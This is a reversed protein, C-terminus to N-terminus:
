IEGPEAYTIKRGEILAKLTASPVGFMADTVYPSEPDEYYRLARKRNQLTSILDFLFKEANYQQMLLKLDPNIFFDNLRKLFENHGNPEALQGRLQHVYRWVNIIPDIKDLIKFLRVVKSRGDYLADNVARMSPRHTNGLYMWIFENVIRTREKPIVSRIRGEALIRASGRKNRSLETHAPIDGLIVEGLEHYAICRALDGEEEPTIRDHFIPLLCDASYAVSLIHDYISRIPIKPRFTDLRVKKGSRPLRKLTKILEIKRVSPLSIFEKELGDLIDTTYDVISSTRLQRCDRKTLFSLIRSLGEEYGHTFDVHNIQRLFGPIECPAILVPIVRIQGTEVQEHFKNQWEREVWGSQVSWPSLVVILYDCSEVAEYIERIFPGGPPINREDFWTDIDHGRLDGDLRRVFDKDKSAHSLFVKIKKSTRGLM